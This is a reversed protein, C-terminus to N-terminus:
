FYSGYQSVFRPPTGAPAAPPVLLLTNPSSRAVPLHTMEDCYNLRLSARPNASLGGRIVNAHNHYHYLGRRVPRRGRLPRDDVGPNHESWFLDRIASTNTGSTQDLGVMEADILFIAAWPRPPRWSQQLTPKDGCDIIVLPNGSATPGTAWSRGLAVATPSRTNHKDTRLTPTVGGSYRQLFVREVVGATTAFKGHHATRLVAMQGSATELTLAPHIAAGSVSAHYSAM